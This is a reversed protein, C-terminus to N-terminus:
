STAGSLSVEFAQTRRLGRWGHLQDDTSEVIIGAPPDHGEDTAYTRRGRGWAWGDAGQAMERGRASRRWRADEACADDADIDEDAEQRALSVKAYLFAAGKKGARQAEAEADHYAAVGKAVKGRAWSKVGPQSDCSKEESKLM